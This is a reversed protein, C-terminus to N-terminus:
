KSMGHGNMYSSRELFTLRADMAANVTVQQGLFSAIQQSISTLRESQAAQQVQLAAMDAQSKATVAATRDMDSRLQNVQYESVKINAFIVFAGVVIAPVSQEILRQYDFGGTSRGFWQREVDDNEPQSNPMISDPQCM